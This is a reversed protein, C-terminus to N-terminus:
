AQDRGQVAPLLLRRAAEPPPDLRLARGMAAISLIFLSAAYLSQEVFTIPAFDSAVSLINFLDHAAIALALGFWAGPLPRFGIRWCVLAAVLALTVFGAHAWIRVILTLGAEESYLAIGEFFGYLGGVFLPTLFLRRRLANADGHAGIVALAVLGVFTGALKLSEETAPALLVITFPSADVFLFLRLPVLVGLPLLIGVVLRFQARAWRRKGAATVQEFTM